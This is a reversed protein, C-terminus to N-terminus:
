SQGNEKKEWKKFDSYIKAIDGNNMRNRGMSEILALLREIHESQQKTNWYSSTQWVEIEWIKLEPDWETKRIKGKEAQLIEKIFVFSENTCIIKHKPAWDVMDQEYLEEATIKKMEKSEANIIDAVVTYLSWMMKNAQISRAKYAIDITVDLEIHDDCKHDAEVNREHIKKLETLIRPRAEPPYRLLILNEGKIGKAEWAKMDLDAPFRLKMDSDTSDM